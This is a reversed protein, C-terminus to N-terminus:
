AASRALGNPGNGARSSSHSRTNQEDRRAEIDAARLHM